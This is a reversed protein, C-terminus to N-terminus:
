GGPHCHWTFSPSPARKCGDFLMHMEPTMEVPYKVFPNCQGDGVHAGIIDFNRRGQRNELRNLAKGAKNQRIATLTYHRHTILSCRLRGCALCARKDDVFVARTRNQKGLSLLKEYSGDRRSSTSASVKLSLKAAATNEDPKSNLSLTSATLSRDNVLPTSQRLSHRSTSM